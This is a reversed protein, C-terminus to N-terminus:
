FLALQQNPRHGDLLIYPAAREAIVGLKKLASLDRLKSHRRSALIAEAGRPGIGPVRLLDHRDARNLELPHDSLNLAAWALKPDSQLPLNGERTFPLDELDFGYDRLLFSAQDHTGTM